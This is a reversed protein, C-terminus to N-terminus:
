RGLIRDAAKKQMEAALQVAYLPTYVRLVEPGSKARLKLDDSDWGRGMPDAKWTIGSSKYTALLEDVEGSRFLKDKLDNSSHSFDECISTGEEFTVIVKYQKFHYTRQENGLLDHGSVPQSGPTVGYRHAIQSETEGPVAKVTATM